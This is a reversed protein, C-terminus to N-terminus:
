GIEIGFFSSYREIIDTELKEKEDNHKNFIDSYNYKVNGVMTADYKGLNGAWRIGCLAVCYDRFWKSSYNSDEDDMFVDCLVNVTEDRVIDILIRLEKELFSWEFLYERKISSQYLQYRQRNVELDTAQFKDEYMGTNGVFAYKLLMGQDENDYTFLSRTNYGYIDKISFVSNPLTYVNTGVILPVQIWKEKTADIHYQRFLELTDTIVDEIQEQALEVNIVPEGLRRKIYNILQLKNM